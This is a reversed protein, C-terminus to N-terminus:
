GIVTQQLKLALGSAPHPPPPRHSSTHTVDDYDNSPLLMNSYSMVKQLLQSLLANCGAL